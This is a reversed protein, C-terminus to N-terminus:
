PKSKQPFDRIRGQLDFFGGPLAWFEIGELRINKSLPSFTLRTSPVQTFVYLGSKNGSVIDPKGDGDMDRVLIHRGVGSKSDLLLPQFRASGNERILKFAYLVSEGSAGPDGWEPPHAWFTKGTVIDKLGDGDIDDLRVSHLQSFAAGYKAKESEEGMIMQRTFTIASGSRVQKFWALGYGHANLGTVVDNLGDGDVDYAHMHSGGNLAQTVRPAPTSSKFDYANFTWTGTPSAPQAYWGTACLADQRGDGDVDGLGLGHGFEFSGNGIPINKWAATPNARDPEFLALGSGAAGLFEPFGDGDRDTIHRSEHGIASRAVHRKWVGASGKPNEYWYVTAEPRELLVIDAWGDGNFDHAHNGWPANAPGLEWGLSVDRGTPAVPAYLFKRTFDPGKFWYPGNVIDLVGDKDFDAADVGEGMYLAHATLKKFSPFSQVAQAAVLAVSLASLVFPVRAISPFM